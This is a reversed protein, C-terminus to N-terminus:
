NVSHLQNETGLCIRNRGQNKAAYCAADALRLAADGNQTESNITVLGISVGITFIQDNYEFRFEQIQRLIIEALSQAQEIGCQYLLIAFEDGGLRAVVDSKRVHTQLIKTVQRLLEDGAAHGATDNVIKFKDLDLCCLAHQQNEHQATTVAEELRREFERRNVLKTLPDHTAQWSLQRAMQRSSTVDRFVLVVGMVEGERSRIAAASHDIAYQQEDRAILLTNNAFADDQKGRLLKDVPNEVAANLKGLLLKNGSNEVSSNLKSRLLKDVPNEVPENTIENVIRFVEKLAVGEAEKASWGTLKEAIPNLSKIRGFADATIVADKISQLTVQALEKERFLAQEFRKRETVDRIISLTVREEGLRIGRSSIEVPFTSGDSRRHLTEYVLGISDAQERQSPIICHKPTAKLDKLTLSRMETAKYGYAKLAANNAEIIEGKIRTFLMMDQTHESLLRYMALLTETQKREIATSLVNAVSELFYLDDPSFKRKETTHAVLVGYPSESGQIIVSMGSVVQHNHLLTAETFRFETRLDEVIVPKKALLTYGGQSSIDAKVTIQGVLGSLWGVGARLLLEQHDPLLELVGSLEIDLTQVIVEVARDMLTDLDTGALAIQGLQAVNAQQRIRNELALAALKRETINRYTTVIGAVSPDNLLNNFIVEFDQWEGDAHKFRMVATINAAPYALTDVLLRDAKALDNPHVFDFAKKRLWDQSDYGLIPTISLSIYTVIGNATLIAIIDSTNQALSRFRQESQLLIEASSIQVRVYQELLAAILALTLIIMTAIAIGVALLSYNMVAFSPTIAQPILQFSAATMGTYHMGAIASGMIVAAGIKQLISHGPTESRMRYSLWLATISAAIAILISVAVLQPNYHVVADIQMAVMGTYHMAAIGLGMFTGGLFLPLYGMTKRSAVFLAAGSAIIAVLMSAIVIPLDYAMQIPLKYALMGIFHMSWIGLGMAIAGGILWLWRCKGIAATIRGALDLATYSAITAIAMSLLVLRLDYTATLM